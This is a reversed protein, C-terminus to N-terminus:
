RGGARGLRARLRKVLAGSEGVGMVGTVGLYVAGYLGLACLALVIAHDTGLLLKVGWAAAAALVAAGWLRASYGAAIGTVGIRAGLSRRLLGFEVWGAIGASATLGAIGWRPDVGLARPLPVAFLYGLLLTLSVRVLAFRLPSRTDRLAYFTSSYLRGLTSALLGVAAGALTAWVWLVDGQTFRGTRFVPAAIVDGLAVFAVASPVIFFAIRRLGGDLRKRLHAAVEESTGSLSSMAPLEAASVSMGFLSGPLLYLAQAYTFISVAGPAILSALAADIYGSIQVVGRGVFVPAFNRVVARVHVSATDLAPRLGPALRFVAPLQVLFQLASGAVAAWAAGVALRPLDTGQRGWWWLAAIMVVNWVVPALYSLLFRRHSNLIGLCWASCVLLGIGPFMIRVLQVTLERKEGEFGMAVTAVLFPTLAMGVAVLVATVLALLAGVVGAVRDAEERDGRALLGAYVPIFSASLVGEGFLNQLFNPIRAAANFADAADSTGFYHGFIRQRVLGFIRSVLIGIAILAAFRGTREHRAAVAAAAPEATSGAADANLDAPSTMGRGM